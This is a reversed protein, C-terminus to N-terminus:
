LKKDFFVYQLGRNVCGFFMYFTSPVTITRYQNIIFPGKVLQGKVQQAMSARGFAGGGKRGSQRRLAASAGGKLIVLFCTCSVMM